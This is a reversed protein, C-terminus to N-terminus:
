VISSVIRAFLVYRVKIRQTATKYPSLVLLDGEYKLSQEDKQSVTEPWPYTTHTLVTEVVLNVTGNVSLPKPLDVIYSYTGSCPFFLRTLKPLTTHSSTHQSM